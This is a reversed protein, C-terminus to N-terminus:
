LYHGSYLTEVCLAHIKKCCSKGGTIKLVPHVMHVVADPRRNRRGLGVTSAADSWM